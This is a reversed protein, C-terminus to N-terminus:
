EITFEPMEKHYEVDIFHCQERIIGRRRVAPELCYHRYLQRYQEVDEEALDSLSRVHPFLLKAYATAVMRVAKLDRLDASPDYSVLENFLAEYDTMQRLQHLVTSFYEANLTWGNNIIAASLRPLKWGEIFCHFRDMTASDRFMEPLKDFYRNDVPLRESTLQINGTLGVGCGSTFLVNDVTASGSELYGKLISQMEDPDSFTFTSIEDIVVADHNKMLGFQKTAKNYFM